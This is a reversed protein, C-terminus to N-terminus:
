AIQLRGVGIVLSIQQKDIVLKIKFASENFNKYYVVTDSLTPLKQTWSLCKAKWVEWQTNVSTEEQLEFVHLSVFELRGKFM